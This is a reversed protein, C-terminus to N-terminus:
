DHQCRPCEEGYYPYHCKDCLHGGKIVLVLDGSPNITSWGLDIGARSCDAAQSVLIEFEDFENLAPANKTRKGGAPTPDSSAKSQAVM